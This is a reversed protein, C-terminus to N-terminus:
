PIIATPGIETVKSKRIAISPLQLDTVGSQALLDKWLQTASPDLPQAQLIQALMTIADSWYGQQAYLRAAVTRDATTLAPSSAQHPAIAVRQIAGRVFSMQSPHDPNCQISLTWSYVANATLPSSQEPVTLSILGAAANPQIFTTKYIYNDAADQLVFEIRTEPHPREPLYFWLTPRDSTTLDYARSSDRPLVSRMAQSQPCTGGRSAGGGKRGKPAGLDPPLPPVSPIAATKFYTSKSSEAAQIPLTTVLAMGVSFCGLLFASRGMISIRTSISKCPTQISPPQPFRRGMLPSLRTCEVLHGLSRTAFSHAVSILSYPQQM